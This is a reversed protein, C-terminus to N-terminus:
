ELELLDQYLDPRLNEELQEDFVKGRRHFEEVNNQKGIAYIEYLERVYTKGVSKDKSIIGAANDWQEPPALQLGIESERPREGVRDCYCSCTLIQTVCVCNHDDRCTAMATGGLLGSCRCSHHEEVYTESESESGSVFNATVMAVVSIIGLIITKM